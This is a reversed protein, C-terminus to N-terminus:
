RGIREGSVSTIALCLFEVTQQQRQISIERVDHRVRRRTISADHGNLEVIVGLNNRRQHSSQTPKEDLIGVRVIVPALQEEDFNV